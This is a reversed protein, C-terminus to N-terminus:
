HGADCRSPALTTDPGHVVAEASPGVTSLATCVLQRLGLPDLAAVPFPVRVELRDKATYFARASGGLVGEVPPLRTGLGAEREVAGPGRLLLQLSGQPSNDAYDPDPAPVLRGEGSVFYAMPTRSPAAVLVRAAAGSEVVDTPKIGCGAVLPAALLAATVAVAARRGPRGARRFLLLLRTM